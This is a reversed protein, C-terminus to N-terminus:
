CSHIPTDPRAPYGPINTTLPSNRIKVPLDPGLPSKPAVAAPKSAIGHVPSISSAAKLLLKFPRPFSFLQCKQQNEEISNHRMNLPSCTFAMSKKCTFSAKGVVRYCPYHKQVNCATQLLWPLEALTGVILELKRLGNAVAQLSYVARQHCLIDDKRGSRKSPNCQAPFFARLVM